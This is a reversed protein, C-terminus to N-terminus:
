LVARKTVRSPVWAGGCVWAVSAPTSRHMVSAAVVGPQAGHRTRVRQRQEGQAGAADDSRQAGPSLRRRHLPRGICLVAHSSCLLWMFKSEVAKSQHMAQEQSNSHIMYSREESEHIQHTDKDFFFSLFSKDDPHMVLCKRKKIRTCRNERSGFEWVKRFKYKHRREIGM